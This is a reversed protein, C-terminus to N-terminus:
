MNEKVLASKQFTKQSRLLIFPLININRHVLTCAMILYWKWVIVLLQKTHFTGKSQNVAPPSFFFCQM